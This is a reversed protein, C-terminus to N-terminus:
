LTKRGNQESRKIRGQEIEFLAYEKIASKPVSDLDTTTIFIQAAQNLYGLLNQQRHSDLESLVDDLLVVPYKGKSEVILDITGLRLSLALTRIQGQSAVDKFPDDENFYFGCDDRHPGLTTTGSIVDLQKRKEFAKKLDTLISPHYELKVVEGQNSLAQYVEVVKDNLKKIFSTRERMIKQAYHILQDTLVELLTEDHLRKKQMQKLVENREKLIRKYHGLNALYAKSLQGIELDMFRRRISPGGKILDLDEPAFMVVGLYGVYDSLRQYEIQNYKAKKGQKSVVMDMQVSQGNLDFLGSIKAFDSGTKILAQDNTTKHSKTLGLVYISEILSTKGQANDGVIINLTPHFQVNLTNYLRFNTLDLQKLIM